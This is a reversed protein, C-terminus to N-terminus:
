VINENIHRSSELVNCKMCAPTLSDAAGWVSADAVHVIM